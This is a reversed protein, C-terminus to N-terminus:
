SCRKDAREKSAIRRKCVYRWKQMNKKSHFSFNDLPASPINIFIIKGGIKRRSSTMIDLANAGGDKESENSQVFKRKLSKKKVIKEEVKIKKSVLKRQPTKKKVIKINKM